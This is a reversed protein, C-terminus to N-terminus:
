CSQDGSAAVLFVLPDRNSACVHLRCHDVNARGPASEFLTAEIGEQKLFAKLFHAAAAENGPPNTTDIRVYRRVLCVAEAVIATQQLRM